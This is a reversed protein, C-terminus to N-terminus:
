STTIDLLFGALNTCAILLVLAVVTLLLAAVAKLPGDVIPHIVVKSTALINYDRGEWADPYAERNQASLTALAAQAQEVTVGSALRAKMFTSHTNRTLSPGATDEFNLVGQMEYTAFMDMPVGPATFGQLEKPAVGVVTWERNAMRLTNGVIEQSHLDDEGISVYRM